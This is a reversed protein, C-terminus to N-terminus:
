LIYRGVSNAWLPVTFAGLMGGITFSIETIEWFKEMWEESIHMVTAEDEGQIGRNSGSEGSCTVGGTSPDDDDDDYDDLPIEAARKPRRRRSKSKARNRGIPAHTSPGTGAGTGTGTGPGPGPVSLTTNIQAVAFVEMATDCRKDITEKLLKIDRAVKQIPTLESENQFLVAGSKSMENSIECTNAILSKFEELEGAVTSETQTNPFKALEIAIALACKGKVLVNIIELDLAIKLCEVSNCGGTQTNGFKALIGEGDESSAMEQVEQPSKLPVNCKSKIVDNLGQVKEVIFITGGKEREGIDMM